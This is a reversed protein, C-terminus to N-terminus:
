GTAPPASPDTRASVPDGTPGGVRVRKLRGSIAFGGVGVLISVVFAVALGMELDGSSRLAAAVIAGSVGTGIATGLTDMLSLASSATGQSETPAERLVILALPAYALGMGYGAISFTPIALWVPVEPILTFSFLALGGIVVLFGVRVFQRTPWRESNRAQTWSGATWALTAATLVVGAAIASLGRGDELALTVYADVGFFTCTLVGRLMVAAPLVPRATLTGPPTLRLLAPIGAVLGAAVLVVLLLPEGSSLGAMFLGAGLSVLLASPLRRRGANGARQEDEASTEPVRVAAIAHHTLVGAVAIFPLMGLFVYRWGLTEGVLGALAPGIVGPLIWATSLTAFMRPRLAEPLSRGIAVYAIPPITGAGLGQIFRAGVLIEMSPALGGILLGIGFLTLGLAFPRGLAGRDVTGGVVAIGILSGLFFASFVWGYLEQGGLERAVIPLVTSVALAEFAVLTITLVLGGSLVRRKPSWLGDHDTASSASHMGSPHRSAAFGAPRAIV